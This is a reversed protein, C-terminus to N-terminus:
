LDLFPSHYQVIKERGYEEAWEQIVEKQSASRVGLHLRQLHPWHQIMWHVDDRALEAYNTNQLVFDELRRLTALQHLGGAESLILTTHDIRLYKLKPFQSLLAFIARSTLVSDMTVYFEVALMELGRCAWVLPVEQTAQQGYGIINSSQNAAYDLLLRPIKLSIGSTRLRKLKTALSLFAWLADSSVPRCFGISLEELAPHQQILMALHKDEIWGRELVIRRLRHLRRFILGTMSASQIRGFWIREVKECFQLPLQELIEQSTLSQRPM